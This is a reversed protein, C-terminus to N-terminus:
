SEVVPLVVTFTSGMDVTSDVWIRGNHNEVISKVIALGLGTGSVATDTNSARYFKDFVYPLDIAPIGAGTDVVQLIIQKQTPLVRLTIKGEPLTYKIANDMLNELLTRIQIPNALVLPIREPIELVLRQKKVEAQIQFNDAIYRLIPDLQISEKRADFGAEIRGLDLLDDVLGTINHVSSQVRRIYERQTDTVPGVREVLEVYGLIATLPSRLDHSAIYLYNELEKNKSIVENEFQKITTIDSTITAFHNERPSVVSIKFYKDLPAYFSDFEFSEGTIGVRSYEELYPPNDTQYVETALKGIANDKSIGTIDTFARNCDIIRYNVAENKDNFVLEHIAVMETMSSFLTSLKEESERLQREAKKSDTIDHIIAYLMVSVGYKIPTAYVEVDRIDGNALRHKLFLHSQQENKTKTLVGQVEDKSLINIDSINKKCIESYTWGYYSCAAPNADVVNGTDPNLMLMVSSNRQFLSRYRDESEQLIEEAKKWDTIDSIIGHWLTSGDELLEPKAECRRWRLGQEPLIVRFESHYYTQSRASENITEAIMDFDDPHLRTFVASADTRVEDSTVEYIDYMGSSSYPFASHGDPYLRYQYVVGPVQAMLKILLDNNEYLKEEANKRDTIDHFICAIGFNEGFENNIQSGSFLCPIRIGNKTMLEVEINKVSGTNLLKQFAERNSEIDAILRKIPIGIIENEHFGTLHLTASNVSQIFLNDGIVIVPDTITNLVYENVAHSSISMLKYRTIAYNIGLLAISFMGIGLPFVNIGYRDSVIKNSISLVFSILSSIVIVYAQKKERKLKSNKGWKYIILIGAIIFIFYYLKFLAELLNIPYTDDWIYMLKEKVIVPEYIVNVIFFFLSPLYILIRRYDTIWKKSEKKVLIAFDLWTSYVLCWGFAAVLRWFNANEQNPAITMFSYGLAWISLNMCLSFFIRNTLSKPNKLFIYFGFFLYILFFTFLILFAIPIM